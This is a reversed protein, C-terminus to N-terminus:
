SSKVKGSQPDREGGPPSLPLIGRGITRGCMRGGAGPRASIRCKTKEPHGAWAAVAAAGNERSYFM